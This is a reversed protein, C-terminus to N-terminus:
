GHEIISLKINYYIYFYCNMRNKFNHKSLDCDFMKIEFKLKFLDKTDKKSYVSIISFVCLSLKM